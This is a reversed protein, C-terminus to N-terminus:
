QNQSCAKIKSRVEATDDIAQAVQYWALAGRYEENNFIRDGKGLYLKYLDRSKPSASLKHTELLQRAESFAHMAETKRNGNAIAKAGQELLTEYSQRMTEAGGILAHEAVGPVNTQAVTISASAPPAPTPSPVQVMREQAQKKIFLLDPRGPTLNLGREAWHMAQPYQQRYYATRAKQLLADTGNTTRAISDTEPAETVAQPTVVLQRPSRNGPPVKPTQGPPTSAGGSPSLALYLGVGGLVVTALAAARLLPKMAGRRVPLPKAPAVPGSGTWAKALAKASSASGSAEDRDGAPNTPLPPTQQSDPDAPPLTVGEPLLETLETAQGFLDTVEQEYVDTPEDPAPSDPRATSRPGVPDAATQELLDLLEEARRARAHPDRVLCRKILSRYPEGVQEVQDPITASLIKAEVLRRVAQESGARADSAFPKEGLMMEYLVVGFAWLDLNYSVRGGAIQEPAKYSPTGRGDSLEFDSQDVTEDDVLKSLGFDAIKPVLRGQNDRSILINAPKFDRHVIRHRHLHQLGLLIGKTLEFTQQPTLPERKLLTAVNGDQYYKMVAFDCLGTDTELRYCADYRAINAQRPMRQALEVEAQLSQDPVGKYESIKVAVWETELQDEVKVVKGYSGSGLLMAPDHPRIPYRRRFDTLTVILSSM